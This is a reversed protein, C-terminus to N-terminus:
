KFLNINFLNRLFSKGDNNYYSNEITMTVDRFLNSLRSFTSATHRRTFDPLELDPLISPRIATEIDISNASHYISQESFVSDHSCALDFYSSFRVESSSLTMTPSQQSIDEISYFYDEESSKRQYIGRQVSSSDDIQITGTKSPPGDNLLLASITNAAETGTSWRRKSAGIDSQSTSFSNKNHSFAQDPLEVGTPSARGGINISDREVSPNKGWPRHQRSPAGGLREAGLTPWEAQGVTSAHVPSRPSVDWPSIGGAGEHLLISDRKISPNKGWPMHQRSSAGGSREADLTPWEAQGGTSAHVPSCPSRGWPSIGSAGERSDHVFPARSSAAGGEPATLWPAQTSKIALKTQPDSNTRGAVGGSWPLSPKKSSFPIDDNLRLISQDICLKKNDRYEKVITAIQTDVNESIVGTVVNYRLQFYQCFNILILNRLQTKPNYIPKGKEYIFHPAGLVDIVGIINGKSDKAVIDVSSPLYAFYQDKYELSFEYKKERLKDKLKGFINKQFESATGLPVEDPKPPLPKFVKKLINLNHSHYKINETTNLIFFIYCSITKYCGLLELKKESQHGKLQDQFDQSIFDLENVVNALETVTPLCSCYAQIFKLKNSYNLASNDSHLDRIFNLKRIFKESFARFNPLGIKNGALYARFVRGAMYNSAPKCLEFNDMLNFKLFFSHKSSDFRINANAFLILVAFYDESRVFGENLTANTLAQLLRNFTHDLSKQRDKDSALDSNKQNEAIKTALSHYELIIDLFFQNKSLFVQKSNLEATGEELHNPYEDPFLWWIPPPLIDEQKSKKKVAKFTEDPPPSGDEGTGLSKPHHISYSM